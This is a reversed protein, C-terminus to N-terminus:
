VWENDHLRYFEAAEAESPRGHIAWDRLGEFYEERRAGPAFHILMSAPRDTQNRFGHIGGPPVHIFDDPATDIWRTGDFIQISGSIIFFSEAITRHFHPDPGPVSPAMVWRYLGFLGGTSAGTALYHVANGNPYVVDPDRGGPRYTASLEGDTGV